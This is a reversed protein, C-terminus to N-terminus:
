KGSNALRLASPCSPAPLTWTRAGKHCDNMDPQTAPDTAATATVGSSPPYFFFFFFFYFCQKTCHLTLFYTGNLKHLSTLNWKFWGGGGMYHYLCTQLGQLLTFSFVGVFSNNVARLLNWYKLENHVYFVVALRKRVTVEQCACWSVPPGTPTGSPLLMDRAPWRVETQFQVPRRSGPLQPFPAPSAPITGVPNKRCRCRQVSQRSTSFSHRVSPSGPWYGFSSSCDSFHLLNKQSFHPVFPKM